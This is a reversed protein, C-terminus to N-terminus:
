RAKVLEQEIQHSCDICGKWEKRRNSGSYTDHGEHERDWLVWTMPLTM